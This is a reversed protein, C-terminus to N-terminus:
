RIIPRLMKTAAAQSHLVIRSYLFLTAALQFGKCMLALSVPDATQLIQSSLLLSSLSESALLTSLTPKTLSSDSK